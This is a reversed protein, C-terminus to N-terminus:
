FHVQCWPWARVTSPVVIEGTTTPEDGHIPMWIKSETAAIRYSALSRNIYATMHGKEPALYDIVLQGANYRGFVASSDILKQLASLAAYCETVTKFRSNGRQGIAEESRERALATGPSRVLHVFPRPEGSSSRGTTSLIRCVTNAPSLYDLM